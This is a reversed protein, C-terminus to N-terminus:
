GALPPHRSIMRQLVDMFGDVADPGADQFAREFRLRQDASLEQELKRGKETLYLHRQRRDDVGQQQEVFGERILQSLVRSLSQKTIQLIELLQSVTMSPYRGVFFIVRHHARGFGYTRLIEDPQAIFDRYAFFLREMGRRLEEEGFGSDGTEQAPDDKRIKDM